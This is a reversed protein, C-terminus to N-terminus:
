CCLCWNSLRFLCFILCKM